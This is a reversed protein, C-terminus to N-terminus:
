APPRAVELRFQAARFCVHLQHSAADFWWGHVPQGPAPAAVADLARGDLQVSSVPAATQVIVEYDRPVPSTGSIQWADPQAHLQATTGDPLTFSADPAASEAPYVRWVLASALLHPDSWALAAADQEPLFPLISGARALLPIQEFPAAITLDKGGQYHEGTWYNVWEGAPLYLTRTVAGQQIVPAVLLYQGLLYQYEAAASRPDAPYELATHRLIPIGTRHAQEAYTAFYPLLSAHLVAYRRWLAQTEGDYWLDVFGRPRAWPHDRMVPTLAGFEAWRMWLEKQDGDSLIDPGWTSYGSMGATIGATVVSPLGYDRSWNHQQDAGWLMPSYQQSGAFGSRSFSVLEPNLSQAIRSTIKHYLLPYTEAITTGDGAAFHDTDEIWEGFDEMWGDLRQDRVAATIMQQWWDVAAPNTFDINGTRVPEFAPGAPLGDAGTQLLKERVGKEYAPSPAPYPLMSQRVYPHVYGLVKLGQAHLTDHFARADGYYSSFWFPWGLNNGEDLEDYVWLASTPMHERRLRAATELVADKGQLATVWPGFTWLPPMQPRGTLGTYQQLVAKPDATTFLYFSVSGTRVKVDYSVGAPDCRFESDFVTDAYLGLGATSYILPVAVYVWDHGPEGSKDAPRIDLRTGALGAQWYREGLGFLPAGGQVHLQAAHATDRQAATGCTLRAVSDTLVELTMPACTSGVSAPLAWRHGDRPYSIRAQQMIQGAAGTTISWAQRGQRSRMTLTATQQDYIFESSATTLRLGHKDQHASVRLAPDAAPRQGTAIFIPSPAPAHLEQIMSTYEASQAYRDAQAHACWPAAVLAAIAFTALRMCRGRLPTM